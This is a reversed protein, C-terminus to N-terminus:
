PWRREPDVNEQMYHYEIGRNDTVTEGLQETMLSFCGSIFKAPTDEQNRM